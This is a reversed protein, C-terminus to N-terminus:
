DVAVVFKGDPSYAASSGRAEHAHDRDIPTGTEANWIFIRSEHIAVLLKEDAVPSPQPLLEYVRKRLEKGTATEWYRITDMYGGTILTKGDRTFMASGVSGFPGKIQRIEKGTATDWVHAHEGSTTVLMRGDHSLSLCDTRGRSQNLVHLEKGARYDWLRVVGDSHASALMEGGPSLALLWVTNKHGTLTRILKGTDYDCVRITNDEGGSIVLRDKHDYVVCTVGGRVHGSFQRLKKGTAADWVHVKANDDTGLAGVGVLAKGDDAYIM